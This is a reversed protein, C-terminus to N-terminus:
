VNYRALLINHHSIMRKPVDMDNDGNPITDTQGPPCINNVQSLIDPEIKFQFIESKRNGAGCISSNYDRTM